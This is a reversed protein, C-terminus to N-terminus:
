TELLKMNYQAEFHRKKWVFLPTRFGKSDEVIRGHSTLYAFDARMEGIKVTDSGSLATLAGRVTGTTLPVVLPFRPQLELDWIKGAKELLCLEQYRTAEKTSAFRIGRVVTPKAGYKHRPKVRITM